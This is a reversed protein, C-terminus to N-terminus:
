VVAFQWGGGGGWTQLSLVLAQDSDCFLEHVGSAQGWKRKRTKVMIIIKYHHDFSNYNAMGTNLDNIKKEGGGQISPSSNLAVGQAV